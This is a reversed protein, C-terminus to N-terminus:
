ILAKHIKRPLFHRYNGVSQGISRTLRAQMAVKIETRKTRWALRMAAHVGPAYRSKM